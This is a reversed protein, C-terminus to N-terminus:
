SAQVEVRELFYTGRAPKGKNYTRLLRSRQIGERALSHMKSKRKMDQGTKVKASELLHTGKVLESEKRTRVEARELNYTHRALKREKITRVLGL